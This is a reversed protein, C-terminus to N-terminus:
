APLGYESKIYDMLEREETTIRDIAAAKEMLRFIKVRKVQDEPMKIVLNGSLAMDFLPEIRNLNYGWKSAINLAFQHEDDSMQGDAAIVVMINNFAYDRVDMLKDIMAPDVDYGFSQRNGSRFSNYESVSMLDTIIWENNTSNLPMDCYNCKLNLSNQVPAGCSACIHAYISGKSAAANRDRSIVIIETGSILVRDIIKVRKNEISIRQSSSKVAVYLNNLKDSESV